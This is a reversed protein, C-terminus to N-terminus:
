LRGGTIYGTAVRAAGAVAGAYMGAGGGGPGERYLAGNLRFAEEAEGAVAVRAGDGLERGADNIALYISEVYARRNSTVTAPHVYFAPVRPLRLALQTPRGMM